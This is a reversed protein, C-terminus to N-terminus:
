TNFVDFDKPLFSQHISCSQKPNIIGKFGFHPIEKMGYQNQIINRKLLLDKVDICHIWIICMEQNADEAGSEKVLTNAIEANLETM